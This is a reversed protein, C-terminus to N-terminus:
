RETNALAPLGFFRHVQMMNEMSKGHQLCKVTVTTVSM